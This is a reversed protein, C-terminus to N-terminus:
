AAGGYLAFITGVLAAAFAVGLLDPARFFRLRATAREVLGYGVTVVVVKGAVIALAIALAAPTSSDGGPVVVRGGPIFINAILVLLVLQEVDAAWRALGLHRGSLDRWLAGQTM